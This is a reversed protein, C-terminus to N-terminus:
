ESENSNLPFKLDIRLNSHGQSLEKYPVYTINIEHFNYDEVLYGTEHISSWVSQIETETIDSRVSKITDRFVSYLKSNENTPSTGISIALSYHTNIVEMSLDEIYALAKTEINGQKIKSKPIKIEAFSNYKTFFSNVVKDSKFYVSKKKKSEKKETKEKPLTAKLDDYSNSYCSTLFLCLTFAIVIRIKKM